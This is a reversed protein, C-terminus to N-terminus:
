NVNDEKFRPRWDQQGDDMVAIGKMKLDDRIKDSEHYDKKERAESRKELLLQLEADTLGARVLAKDKLEKLVMAYPSSSMLGLVKLVGKVETELAVLSQSLSLQHQVKKKLIDSTVSNIFRLTKQLTSTLFDGVHLDDAMKVEFDFKLEKLFKQGKSVANDNESVNEVQPFLLTAREVDHLAKYIPFRVCDRVALLVSVQLLKCISVCNKRSKSM